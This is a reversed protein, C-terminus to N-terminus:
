DAWSTVNDQDNADDGKNELVNSGNTWKLDPGGSWVKVDVLVKDPQGAETGSPYPTGHRTVKGKDPGEATNMVSHMCDMAYPKGWPDEYIKGKLYTMKLTLYPGYKKGNIPDVIETGLYKYIAEPDSALVEANDGTGYDGTDPPYVGLEKYYESAAAAITKVEKNALLILRQRRAAALAPLLLGVLLIIVGIVILMELLTFGGAQRYPLRLMRANKQMIEAGM